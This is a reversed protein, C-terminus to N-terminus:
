IYFFQFLALSTRIGDFSGMHFDRCILRFAQRRRAELTQVKTAKRNLFCYLVTLRLKVSITPIFQLTKRELYLLVLGDLIVNGGEGGDGPVSEVHDPLLDPLELPPDSSFFSQFGYLINTMYITYKNGFNNDNEEM